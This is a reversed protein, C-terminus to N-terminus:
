RQAYDPYDVRLRTFLCFTQLPFLNLTVSLDAWSVKPLPNDNEKDFKGQNLSMIRLRGWM